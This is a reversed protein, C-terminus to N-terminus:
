PQLPLLTSIAVYAQWNGPAHHRKNPETGFIGRMTLMTKPLPHEFGVIRNPNLPVFLDQGFVIQIWPRPSVRELRLQWICWRHFYIAHISIALFRLYATDPTKGFPSRWSAYRSSKSITNTHERAKRVVQAHPCDRQM